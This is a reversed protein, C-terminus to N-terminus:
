RLREVVKKLLLTFLFKKTIGSVGGLLSTPHLNSRAKEMALKIHEVDIQRQLKLIQLERNIDEFSSFQRATM